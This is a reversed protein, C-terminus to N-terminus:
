EAKMLCCFDKFLKFIARLLVYFYIFKLDPVVDLGKIFGWIIQFKILYYHLHTM